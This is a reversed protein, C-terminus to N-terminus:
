EEERLEKLARRIKEVEEKTLFLDGGIVFRLGRLEPFVDVVIGALSYCDEIMLRRRFEEEGGCNFNWVEIGEEEGGLVFDIEIRLVDQLVKAIKEGVEYAIDMYEKLKKDAEFFKQVISSM